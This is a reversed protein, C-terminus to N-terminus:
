RAAEEDDDVYLKSMMHFLEAKPYWISKTDLTVRQGVLAAFADMADRSEFNVLVQKFADLDECIFEPMGQWMEEWWEGVDLLAMQREDSQYDDAPMVPEEVKPPPQQEVPEENGFLDRV